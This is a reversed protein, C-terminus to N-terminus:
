GAAGAKGIAGLQPCFGAPNRNFLTVKDDESLFDMKAIVPVLDDSTKGTEPRVAGGSGPAETGFLMQKLGRQKITAELVPEDYVCTDFFLNKTLDKQALHMDTPIFRNLAGGGHCVCVKLEPYREFVDGHSLLQTALFQEWVFGIQYNHPIIRIRPDLCNTGHVVIPVGLQQAKAYVPFWYPEHMGPTNRKGSPDPSLYIATFGLENV